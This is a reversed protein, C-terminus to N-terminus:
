APRYTRSGSSYAVILVADDPGVARSAHVAGPPVVCTGGAVIRHRDDGIRQEIEGELVHIVETCDPHCHAPSIAGANVTMRALSVGTGPAIGDDALWEM